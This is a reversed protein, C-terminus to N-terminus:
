IIQIKVLAVVSKLFRKIEQSNFWGEGIALRVLRVLEEFSALECIVLEVDM